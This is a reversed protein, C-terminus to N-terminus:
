LSLPAVVGVPQVSAGTWPWRDTVAATTASPIRSQRKEKTEKRQNKAVTQARGAVRVVRVVADEVRGAVVALDM